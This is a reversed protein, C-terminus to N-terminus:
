QTGRVISDLRRAAQVPDFEHEYWKRSAESMTKLEEPTFDIFKRFASELASDDYDSLGIGAGQLNTLEATDGPARVFLPKAMGTLQQIKSPFTSSHLATNALSVLAVDSEKTWALATALPVADLVHVSNATSAAEKLQSHSVGSGVFVLRAKDAVGAKTFAAIVPALDQAPGMSGAYFFVRTSDGAGILRRLSPGATGADDSVVQPDDVWNYLLELKSAPVGRSHLLTLASPSIVIIKSALRYSLAVFGSLATSILRLALSRSVFGSDVVSDPWVDQVHLVFPINSFVNLVIAPLAATAPSSYVILVDSKCRISRLRATASLAFSAYGLLRGFAGSGRYPFEPVRLVEVGNMLEDKPLWARYGASVHGSPYHPVGTVVTVQHGEARLADVVSQPVWVNEPPFWQTLLTVRM